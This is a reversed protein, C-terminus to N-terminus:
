STVVAPAAQGRRLRGLQGILHGQVWMAWVGTVLVGVGCLLLGVVGALFQAVLTGIVVLVIPGLNERIQAFIRSFNFGAALSEKEAVQLIILPSVLALFISYILMLCGCVLVVVGLLVSVANSAGDGSNLFVSFILIPLYLLLMPLSWVFLAVSVRLGDVLMPGLDQWAPLPLEEGRAVQRVIAVMYGTFLFFAFIGVLVISFVIGVLLVLAGIILKVIWEPDEFMFTFSRGFDLREM